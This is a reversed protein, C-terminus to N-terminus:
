QFHPISHPKPHLSIWSSIAPLSPVVKQFIGRCGFSESPNLYLKEYRIGGGGKEKIAILYLAGGKSERM